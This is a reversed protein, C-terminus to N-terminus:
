ANVAEWIERVEGPLTDWEVLKLDDRPRPRKKLDTPYVAFPKADGRAVVYCPAIVLRGSDIMPRIALPEVVEVEEDVRMCRGCPCTVALLAIEGVIFRQEENM